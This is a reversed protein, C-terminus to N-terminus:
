ITDMFSKETYNFVILGVIYTTFAFLISYLLGFLNISGTGLFGYRFADFISTLPNLYILWQKEPGLKKLFLSTPYIVPTVYMALGVVFSMLQTLDKYKTTLSSIMM